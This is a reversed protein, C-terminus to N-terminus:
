KDNKIRLARISIIRESIMFKYESINTIFQEIKDLSNDDFDQHRYYLLGNLLMLVNSFGFDRTEGQPINSKVKELAISLYGLEWCLFVIFYTVRLYGKKEDIRTILSEIFKEREENSILKRHFNLLAEANESKIFNAEPNISINQSKPSCHIRSEHGVGTIERGPITTCISGLGGCERGCNSYRYIESQLITVIKKEIINSISSVAELTNEERFEKKQDASNFLIKIGQKNGNSDSIYIKAKFVNGIKTRPLKGDLIIGINLPLACGKPIIKESRPETSFTRIESYDVSIFRELIKRKFFNKKIYVDVLKISNNTINQVTFKASLCLVNSGDPQECIKWICWNIEPTLHFTKRSKKILCSIIFGFTKFIIFNIIKKFYEYVISLLTEAVAM